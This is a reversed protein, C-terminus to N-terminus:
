GAKHTEPVKVNCQSGKQCAIRLLPAGSRKQLPISNRASRFGKELM